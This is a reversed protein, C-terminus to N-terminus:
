KFDSRFDSSVSWLARATREFGTLDSKLWSTPFPKLFPSVKPFLRTKSSCCFTAVGTHNEWWAIKTEFVSESLKPFLLSGSCFNRGLRMTLKATPLPWLKPMKQSRGVGGGNGRSKSSNGMYIIAFKKLKKLLAFAPCCCIGFYAM